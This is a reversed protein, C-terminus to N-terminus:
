KKITGKKIEKGAEKVPMQGKITDCAGAGRQIDYDGGMAKRDNNWCKGEQWMGRSCQRMPSLRGSLVGIGFSLVVAACIWLFVAIVKGFKKLGETEAKRAAFLVFFSVMLFMSAPILSLLGFIRM